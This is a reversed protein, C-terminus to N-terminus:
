LDSESLYVNCNSVILYKSLNAYQIVNRCNRTHLLLCITKKRDFFFLFFLCSCLLYIRETPLLMNLQTFFYDVHFYGTNFLGLVVNFFVFCVVFFLFFMKIFRKPILANTIRLTKLVHLRVQQGQLQHPLALELTVISVMLLYLTM